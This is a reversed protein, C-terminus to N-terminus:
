KLSSDVVAAGISDGWVNVATRFRDLFWDVGIILGVGELPLGVATLVLSMTVLGAQPIGAAGISALTATLAIIIIQSIDLNMNYAQAIFVVAVAEYLATGDMNITAGLPLVFKRTNKNVKANKVCDMTLPLTASSSGTSIANLIAPSMTKAYDLIKRKTRTLIIPLTITSHILLGLLVVIMYMMVFNLSELGRTAITNGILAFIGYPTLHIVWMTMKLVAEFMSEFFDAAPKGKEGTIGISFGLLLSFVIISLIKGNSLAAIPNTPVFSYLLEKITTGNKVVDPTSLNVGELNLGNGPQITTVLILGLVVAFFTTLLYYGFTKLALKKAQNKGSKIANISGTTMSFLVLPVILMKLLRMFIDGIPAIAISFNPFQWGFLIGLLMGLGIKKTLSKKM